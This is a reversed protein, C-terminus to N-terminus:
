TVQTLDWVVIGGGRSGMAVYRGCSSCALASCEGYSENVELMQVDVGVQMSAWYAGEVDM